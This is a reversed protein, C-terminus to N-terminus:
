GSADSGSPPMSTSSGVASTCTSSGAGSPDVEYAGIWLAATHSTTLRGWLSIQDADREGAALHDDVAGRAKGPAACVDV